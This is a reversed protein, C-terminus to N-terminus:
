HRVGPGSCYVLCSLGLHLCMNMERLMCRVKILRRAAGKSEQLKVAVLVEILQKGIIDDRPLEVSPASEAVAELTTADLQTDSGPALAQVLRQKLTTDLM